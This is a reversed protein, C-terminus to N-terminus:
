ALCNQRIESIIPADLETAEPYHEKLYRIIKGVQPGPALEFTNMILDGVAAKSTHIGM